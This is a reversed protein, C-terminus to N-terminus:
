LHDLEFMVELKQKNWIRMGICGTYCKSDTLALSNTCQEILLCHPWYTRSVTALRQSRLMSTWRNWFLHTLWNHRSHISNPLIRAFAKQTATCPHSLASIPYNGFAVVVCPWWDIDHILAAVSRYQDYLPMSWPIWWRLVVFPMMNTWKVSRYICLMLCMKLDSQTRKLLARLDYWKIPSTLNQGDIACSASDISSVPISSPWSNSWSM